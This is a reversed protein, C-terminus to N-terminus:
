TSTVSLTKKTAQPPISGGVRPNEFLALVVPLGQDVASFGQREQASDAGGM